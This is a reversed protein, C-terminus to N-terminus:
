ELLSKGKLIDVIKQISNAGVLENIGAAKGELFKDLAVLVSLHGLSDWEEVEQMSSNITLSGENLSLASEIVSIVDKENSRGM